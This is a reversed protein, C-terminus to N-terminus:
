RGCFALIANQLANVDSYDLAAAAANLGGYKRALSSVSKGHCNPQGPTGGFPGLVAFGSNAIKFVTGSGNLNTGQGFTAGGYVTTSLLDGNADALFVGSPFAGNNGDFSVLTTPTTAYGSATKAIKFVTGFSLGGYYTTGFLNGQADLVLEAALGSGSSGNFSFSVLTTPTTAYGTPTSADKKIEYVTGGGPPFASGGDFTTGFLNGGSDAIV